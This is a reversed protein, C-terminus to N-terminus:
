FPIDMEDLDPKIIKASVLQTGSRDGKEWSRKELYEITIWTGEEIHKQAKDANSGWVGVDFEEGHVDIVKLNCVKSGNSAEKVKKIESVQFDATEAPGAPKDNKPADTPAAKKPAPKKSAENGDDDSEGLGMIALAQTRRMYTVGSKVKQPDNNDKSPIAMPGYEIWQGSAHIIRTTLTAGNAKQEVAQTLMLEHNALAYRITFMVSELSAYKNKFHPNVGDKAPDKIGKQAAVLATFLKQTSESTKM